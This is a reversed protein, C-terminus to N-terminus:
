PSGEKRVAVINQFAFLNKQLPSVSDLSRLSGDYLLRHLAYGPLLAAIDDMTTRSLLNMENFEFQVFRVKRAALMTSAGEIVSREFGEVDIKLLDVQDIAQEDCFRDITTLKVEFRAPAIGTQELVGPVLTAFPTGADASRDFMPLTGPTSGCGLAIAHIRLRKAAEQLRAFAAPNPEFSYIQAEPFAKRAIRAYQGINAGVDLIIAEPPLVKSLKQLLRLEDRREINHNGVGLGSAAIRFLRRNLPQFM